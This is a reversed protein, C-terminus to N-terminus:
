SFEPKYKLEGCFQTYFLNGICSRPGEGFPFYTFPTINKENDESFREPDFKLPDPFYKPDFHLGWMPIMVATGKELVLDTGPLKYNENCRRDLFPLTPYM